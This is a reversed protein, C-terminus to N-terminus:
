EPVDSILSFPLRVVISNFFSCGDLSTPPACILFLSTGYGYPYFNPLSIEHSLLGLDVGPGRGLIRIGPLYTGVVEPQLALLSQILPLFKQLGLCNTKFFECM